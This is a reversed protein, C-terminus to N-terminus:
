RGKSELEIRANRIPENSAYRDAYLTLKGDWLIGLLEVDPSKLELRPGSLATAAVPVRSEDGHSHDDGGGAFAPVPLIM